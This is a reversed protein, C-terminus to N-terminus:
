EGYCHLVEQGPAIDKAARATVTVGCVASREESLSEPLDAGSPDTATGTSFVLSTNPCCSHNLVSLTPFIATAICVEQSAQVPSNESGTFHLFWFSPLKVNLLNQWLLNHLIMKMSRAKSIWKHDGTDQLRIIAQANTRLQLMHRLVTSGLLWLESSHDTNGGEEDPSQSNAGSPGRLDWSAPLPGSSSLKFYITAVTVAYLFIVGPSHRNLNHLLHFVSLYSDGHYLTHGPNSESSKVSSSNAKQHQQTNLERALQVNKLGAKLTARLALQLMVGMVKLDAGLACEWRHHEEWAVQRCSASCYQSYSCGECPRPCLTEALCRHCRRHETGFSVGSVTDRRAGKGKVEKLGPILVCSYPRDNLIVEGAAIRETAM